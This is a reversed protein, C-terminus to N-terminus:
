PQKEAVVERLIRVLKSPLMPKHLLRDAGAQAARAALEPDANGGYEGYATWMVIPLKQGSPMQRISSLAQWGNMLPMEVDLVIIDFPDIAHQVAQVAQVAQAGDAAEFTRFGALDFIMRYLDRTDKTDDVLLIHM